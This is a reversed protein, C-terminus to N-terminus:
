EEPGMAADIREQRDLFSVSATKEKDEWVLHKCPEGGAIKPLPAGGPMGGQRPIACCAGEGCECAGLREGGMFYFTCAKPRYHDAKPYDRCVKPRDEYIGCRAIRDTTM